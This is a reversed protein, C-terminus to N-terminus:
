PLQCSLVMAFRGATITLINKKAKFSRIHALRWKVVEEREAASLLVLSGDRVELLCSGYYSLRESELLDVEYRLVPEASLCCCLGHLLRCVAGVECGSM